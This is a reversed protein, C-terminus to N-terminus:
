LFNVHTPKNNKFNELFENLNDGVCLKPCKKVQLDRLVQSRKEGKWIDSFKEKKINGVFGEKNGSLSCCIYVGGRATISTSKFAQAHCSSYKRGTKGSFIKNFKDNDIVLKFNESEYKKLDNFIEQWESPKIKKYDFFFGFSPRLQAYDMGIDKCLEVFRWCQRDMDEYQNTIYGAGLTVELNKDRKIEVLDRMNQVTKDFTSKSGHTRVHTEHDYADLSVRIWSFHELLEEMPISKKHFLSGNCILGIDFGLKATHRIVDAFKKHATPEGGGTYNIGKVGMSKLDELLTVLLDYSLENNDNAILDADICGPCNHNCVNTLDIKVTIPATTDEKLLWEQMREPHYLVKNSKLFSM